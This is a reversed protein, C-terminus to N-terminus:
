LERYNDGVASRCTVSRSRKRANKKEETMNFLSKKMNGEMRNLEERRIPDKVRNKSLHKVNTPLYTTMTLDKDSSIDLERWNTRAADLGQGVPKLNECKLTNNEGYAVGKETLTTDAKLIGREDTLDQLWQAEFTYYELSLSNGDKGATSQHCKEALEDLTMTKKEPDDPDHLYVTEVKKGNEDVTKEFGYVTLYQGQITLAVAAEDNVVGKNVVTRLKDKVENLKQARQEDTWPIFTKREPSFNGMMLSAENLATDPVLKFIMERSQSISNDQDSNVYTGERDESVAPDPRFARITEQDVEVGKQRLMSSLAVSWGGNITHQMEPQTVNKLVAKTIEGETNKVTEPKETQRKKFYENAYKEFHQLRKIGIIRRNLYRRLDANDEGFEKDLEKLDSIRNSNIKSVKDAHDKCFQGYDQFFESEAFKKKLETRESPNLSRFEEETITWLPPLIKEEPGSMKGSYAAQVTKRGMGREPNQGMNRGMNSERSREANREEAAAAEKQKGESRIDLPENHERMRTMSKKISELKRLAVEVDDMKMDALPNFLRALFGFFTSQRSVYSNLTKIAEDISEQMEEMSRGEMNAAFDPKDGPREVGCLRMLGHNVKWYERTGIRGQLDGIYDWHKALRDLMRGANMIQERERGADFSNEQKKTTNPM